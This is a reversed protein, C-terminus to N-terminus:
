RVSRQARDDSEYYEQAAAASIAASAKAAKAAAQEARHAEEEAAYKQHKEAAEKSWPAPKCRCGPTIARQFAFANPADAYKRGALDIMTAPNGRYLPFFFLRADSGCESTCTQADRAFYDPNANQRLPFYFGDCARVCMTAYPGARGSAPAGNESQIASAERTVTQAPADGDLLCFVAVASIGQRLLPFIRM